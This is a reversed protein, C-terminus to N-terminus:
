REVKHPHPSDLLLRITMARYSHTLSLEYPFGKERPRRKIAMCVFKVVWLPFQSAQRTRLEGRISKIGRGNINNQQRGLLFEV